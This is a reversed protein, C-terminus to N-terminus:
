ELDIEADVIREVRSSIDNHLKADRRAQEKRAKWQGRSLRERKPETRTLSSPISVNEYYDDQMERATARYAANGLKLAAKDNNGAARAKEMAEEKSQWAPNLRRASCSPDDLPLIYAHIHPHQEDWHEIVSVLRDGFLSKLWKLNLGRWNEYAKRAADDSKVLKTPLPHSAVATMLTHRDKRIGRRVQRGSKLTVKVGGKEVMDDHLSRVEDVGIGYVVVPPQPGDVHECYEPKRETEDLVQQVSQGGGNAKRSFSQLHMFQLGSM